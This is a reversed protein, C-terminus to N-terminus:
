LVFIQHNTMYPQWPGVYNLHLKVQHQLRFWELGMTFSAFCNDFLPRETLVMLDIHHNSDECDTREEPAEPAEPLRLGGSAKGPDIVLLVIFFLQSKTLKVSKSQM